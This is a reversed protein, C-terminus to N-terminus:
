PNATPNFTAADGTVRSMLMTGGGVRGKCTDKSVLDLVEPNYNDWELRIVRRGGELALKWNGGSGNSRIFRKDPTLVLIDTWEPHIAVWKGAYVADGTAPVPTATARDSSFHAQGHAPVPIAAFSFIAGVFLALFPLRTKM